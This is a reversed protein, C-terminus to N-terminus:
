SRPARKRSAMSVTEGGAKIESLVLNCYFANQVRLWADREFLQPTENDWTM